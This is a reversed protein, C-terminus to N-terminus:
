AEESRDFIDIRFNFGEHTMVMEGFEHWSIHQGDIVVVPAGSPDGPNCAIHGRVVGDDTIQYRGHRGHTIHKRDMGREIRAILHGFLSFLSGVGEDSQGIICFRYGELDNDKMEIADMSIRDGFLHTTFHFTHDQGDTDTFIEPEFSVHTFDLDAYEAARQNYCKSCLFSSRDGETLYVGDFPKVECNCHECLKM